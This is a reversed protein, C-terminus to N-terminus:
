AGAKKLVPKGKDDQTSYKCKPFGTCSWFKSGKNKGQKATMQRLPSACEPCAHFSAPKGKDDQLTTRCEPFGTCGWFKAGEAGRPVMPKSCTPCPHVEGDYAAPEKKEGPKGDDDPFTTKCDPYNSCGWFAGHKGPRKRLVGDDCTPCEHREGITLSAVKGLEESLQGDAAKLVTKYDSQGNAIRDLEAEINRTYEYEMFSFKGVLIDVLVFAPPLPTIRQNAGEGVYGRNYLNGIIAAYTSPRGIEESELRKVLSADSYRGPPKTQKEVVDGSGTLSMGESLPPLAQGGGEEQEEDTNDNATLRTWGDFVPVKGKSTFLQARDSVKGTSELTVTTVAVVAPKMQSAIARAKILRYLAREQADEIGDGNDNFDAPRIAEHAGQSSDKEKWQNPTDPICDEMGEAKLLARISEISEASLNVADTRHYTILGAAFLNQAKDMTMGPRMKLAVSAGQQLTSTTFAAPAKRTAEKQEIGKITFSDLAAVEDAVARDLWCEGDSLLPTFDWEAAWQKADTSLTLKVGYHTTATFNEIERERDVILRLAPSQVRGASLREGTIDALKPSVRFGVLRDLARRAEQARVLPLNIKSRNQLAKEIASKTIETFAIRDPNKLKLVEQLHYAIAEGERDLDTALIVDNVKAAEKLRKVVDKKDTVEYFPEYDPALPIWGSAPFDRIHGVSAMVKYGDGLYGQLKKIKNPSEVIVLTTGTRESM